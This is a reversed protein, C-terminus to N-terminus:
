ARMEMRIRDVDEVTVSYGLRGTLMAAVMDAPLTMLEDRAAPRSSIAQGDTEDYSLYTGDGADRQIM